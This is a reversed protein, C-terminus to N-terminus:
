TGACPKPRFLHPDGKATFAPRTTPPVPTDAGQLNLTSLTRETFHVIFGDQRAQTSATKAKVPDDLYEVVMVKGGDKVVRQLNAASERQQLARTPLAAKEADFYLSEKAAADIRTRVAKNALLEEANQLVVIADPKIKRAHDILRSMFTVMDARASKRSKFEEYIDTRDIYIGDFGADLLRDVYSDSQGFMIAQWQPQWYKVPYNGYWDPNAKGLWVPCKLSSFWGENWYFRYHEAEGISLYALVLRRSGDPKRKLGEIETRRYLLEVSEVRDPAHDIVVLDFPTAALAQLDMKQLQYGWSSVNAMLAKRRQQSPSADAGATYALVTILAGLVFRSGFWLM